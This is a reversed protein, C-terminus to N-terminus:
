CIHVYDGIFIIRQQEPPIGVKDEIIQKLHSVAHNSDLVLSITPGTLTKIFIEISTGSDERLLLVSKSTIGQDRLSVLNILLSDQHDHYVLGYNTSFKLLNPHSIKLKKIIDFPTSFRNITVEIHHDDYRSAGESIIKLKVFETVSLEMNRMWWQLVKYDDNKAGYKLISNISCDKFISETMSPLIMKLEKEILLIQLPQDIQLLQHGNEDEYNIPNLPQCSLTASAMDLKEEVSNSVFIKDKLLNQILTFPDNNENPTSITFTKENTYSELKVSIEIDACPSM